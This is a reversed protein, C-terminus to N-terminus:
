GGSVESGGDGGAPLRLVFTTGQGDGLSEAWLRGGHAEAIRRCVYLGLGLGPLNRAAANPARGFPQFIQEASGDPLGIGEDAVRVLVSEPERTLGLHIEGGSPSYKVANDLLNVLVQRLRDPDAVLPCPEDAGSLRLLHHQGPAPQQRATVERLLGALDVPVPRLPFQGSQLRSVDLLDDVLASLRRSSEDIAGLYHSLRREDLQGRAQLRALFQASGRVGAVPNRLEHSAISLFEDRARVAREAAVRAAQERALLDAREQDTWHREIAISALHTATAVLQRDGPLPDRLQRYYVGFSGLLRGDSAVIPASYCTRLGAALALDRWEEAWREDAAIDATIVEEGQHTALGCPGLYPPAFSATALVDTYSRPLSPAVGLCFQERAPDRVLISGLLDSSQAEIVRLLAALVDPLDAGRGILELVQAQGALLNLSRSREDETRQRELAIRALYLAIAILERDEASPRSPQFRYVALTGLVQDTRDVIPWSWCAHLGHPLLLHRYDDWRPDTAVDAVIVPERLFAATGCSGAQPGIALGDIADLYEPPLSPGAGHHLRSDDGGLLLISCLMGESKAEIFEALASLTEELPAGKAILELVTRQGALLLGAHGGDLVDRRLRDRAATLDGQGGPPREVPEAPSNKAPSGPSPDTM